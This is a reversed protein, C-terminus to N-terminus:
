PSPNVVVQGTVDAGNQELRAQNTQAPQLVGHSTKGDTFRLQSVGSVQVAKGNDQYLDGGTVRADNVSGVQIVPTAADFADLDGIFLPGQFTVGPAYVGVLGKTGFLHANSARVGGFQGNTSSIAIFAIDAVGDTQLSTQGAFLSSGNNAPDNTDSPPLLINFGGTPDFATARGVSFVTVNTTEDAGAIVIGAHGKMYSVGPQSYKLPEAPGSSADLVLSLTGHGAFEV